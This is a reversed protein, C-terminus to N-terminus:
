HHVTALEERVTAAVAVYSILLEHHKYFRLMLIYPNYMTSLRLTCSFLTHEARPFVSLAMLLKEERFHPSKRRLM